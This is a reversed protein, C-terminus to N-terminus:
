TKNKLYEFTNDVEESTFEPNRAIRLVELTQPKIELEKEKNHIM